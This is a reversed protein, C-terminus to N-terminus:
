EALDAAQPGPVAGPPQSSGLIDSVAWFRQAEPNPGVTGGYRTYAASFEYAEDISHLVAFGFLRGAALISASCSFRRMMVRGPVIRPSVDAATSGHVLPAQLGQACIQGDDAYIAKGATM